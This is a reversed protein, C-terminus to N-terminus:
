AWIAVGHVDSNEEMDGMSWLSEFSPQRSQNQRRQQQLSQVVQVNRQPPQKQVQNNINENDNEDAMATTTPELMANRLFYSAAQLALEEQNKMCSSHVTANCCFSSGYDDYNFDEHRHQETREHRQAHQQNHKNWLENIQQITVYSGWAPKQKKNNNNCCCYQITYDYL